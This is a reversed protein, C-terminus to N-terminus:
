TKKEQLLQNIEAKSPISPQAGLKTAALAGAACGRQAADELSAGEALAVAFVGVFSDGAATTDVVNVPFSQV